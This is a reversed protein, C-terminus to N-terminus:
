WGDHLARDLGDGGQSRAEVGFAQVGGLELAQLVIGAGANAAQHLPRAAAGRACGGLELPQAVQRAELRGEPLATKEADGAHVFHADAGEGARHDGGGNDQRRPQEEGPDVVGFAEAAPPASLQRFLDAGAGDAVGEPHAADGLDITVVDGDGRADGHAAGYVAQRRRRVVDEGVRMADVREGHPLRGEGRSVPAALADGRRADEGLHLAVGHHLPQGRRVRPVAELAVAAVAGGIM